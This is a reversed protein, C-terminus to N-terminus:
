SCQLKFFKLWGEDFTVEPQKSIEDFYKQMTSFRNYYFEYDKKGLLKKQPFPLTGAKPVRKKLGGYFDLLQRHRYTINTIVSDQPKISWAAFDYYRHDIHDPGWASKYSLLVAGAALPKVDNLKDELTKEENQPDEKSEPKVSKIVDEI